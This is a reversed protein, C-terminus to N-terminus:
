RARKSHKWLWGLMPIGVGLGVGLLVIINLHDRIVPINGFFYGSPVLTVVWATVGVISFLQFKKFTMTSVGAVFPAFTRVIPIFLFVLFTIGGYKEYFAHTTKLADRNLWKYDRVFVRQGIANGFWYNLSSGIVAAIFLLGMLIWINMAGTACLAGGIFLLPNGPLFFLVLLATECFVMAFLVAYILSGHQVIVTNLFQDLHM